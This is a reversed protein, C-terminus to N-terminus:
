GMTGVIEVAEALGVREISVGDPFAGALRSPMMPDLLVFAGRDDARRVLRGFAQKLRLRTIMDDYARDGFHARRAKHLIDPRPWPVRDFVILRLSRGPVDVGDRMADTGLLCANEEARFMDVLTAPDIGDVHQAFLPLDAAEMDAAIHRHVARLRGIATFLGLAGGRAALFLERYAAAVRDLTDKRVDTVVLVRTQTPYDFPSPVAARVAHPLHVAGTRREAAHWDAEADGSGDRLTASTVVFGHARSAVAEAFPVTPDVWHRHLGVDLDRGYAREIGLWDVFEPQTEAGVTRCMARWARVPRLARRDLSRILGELRQRTTPDLKAAEDDLRAELAKILNSVPLDLGHLAVDLAAAAEVLGPLPPAVETELSYPGDLGRARAQVQERVLSLFRETPGRGGGEGLRAHWGPGPLVRAGQLVEVLAEAARPNEGILEEARAKLGRARSRSGDEAGLLWRRLDATEAGSLHASFASDAAEFLHHGEDFVYRTPLVGDELGGLAAQVLVLAHNAVVLRARRARRVAKEIYCRNYHPCAAFICEGRRDALGVSWGRGLIDVLWGPFDGGVLDGDRTAMAWRAMLGLPIAAAPQTPLRSVAEELNLLCLYNERGKRIVVRRVKETPDPYLRDLEGDLQRQLNRTYTSIWVTGDNKEAWVSAPAIYGLTKGVGTGAEALVAHPAARKERPAFATAAASAYDAQQPRDEAAPGLLDALRGRAEADSVPQNGAPVDPAHESIEGLREWVRFARVTTSTHPGDGHAGLAALVPPGWLWGGRAMAFALTRADAQDRRILAAVEHLLVAAIRPLTLAEAVRDHPPELGVAEALGGVTPLVFRAPRVFAFLELLDHARISERGLRAATSPAHCVLPRLEAARRGIAAPAGDEVEGDPHVLVARRPSAVLAPVPPVTVSSAPPVANPSENM